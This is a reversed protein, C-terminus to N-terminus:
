FLVRCNVLVKYICQNSGKSLTDKQMVLQYETENIKIAYDLNGSEFRSEFVLTKDNPDVPTYYTTIRDKELTSMFSWPFISSSADGSYSCIYKQMDKQEFNYIGKARIKDTYSM